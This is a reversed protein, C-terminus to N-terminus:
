ILAFPSPQIVPQFTGSITRGPLLCGSMQISQLSRTLRSCPHSVMWCLREGSLIRRSHTQIRCWNRFYFLGHFLPFDMRSRLNRSALGLFVLESLHSILSPKGNVIWLINGNLAAEFGSRPVLTL